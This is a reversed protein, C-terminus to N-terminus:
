AFISKKGGYKKEFGPSITVTGKIQAFFTQSM